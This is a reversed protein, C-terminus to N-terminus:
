WIRRIFIGKTQQGASVGIQMSPRDSHSRLGDWLIIGGSGAVALGTILQSKSFTSSESTGVVSSVTTSQSSTAAVATGVAIAGGGVLIKIFKHSSEEEARAIAPVMLLAVLLCALRKRM